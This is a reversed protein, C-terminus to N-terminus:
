SFYISIFNGRTSRVDKAILWLNTKRTWDEILSPPFYLKWMDLETIVTSPINAPEGDRFDDVNDIPLQFDIVNDIDFGDEM